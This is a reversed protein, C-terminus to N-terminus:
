RAAALSALDTGTMSGALNVDTFMFCMCGGFKELLLEAAEGSECQFVQMETEELLIAIIARQFADDEVVLAIPKYPVFSRGKMPADRVLASYDRM